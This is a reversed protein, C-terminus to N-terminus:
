RSFVVVRDPDHGAAHPAGPWGGFARRWASVVSVPDNGDVPVEQWAFVSKPEEGRVVPVNEVGHLADREQVRRPLRGSPRNVVIDNRARELTQRRAARIREQKGAHLRIRRDRSEVFGLVELCESVRRGIKLLEDSPDQLEERRARQTTLPLVFFDRPPLKQHPLSRFLTTYPFLTSRPPRRIM